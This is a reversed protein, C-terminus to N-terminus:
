FIHIKYLNYVKNYNDRELYNNLDNFFKNVKEESLGYKTLNHLLNAAGNKHRALYPNMIDAKGYIFILMMM